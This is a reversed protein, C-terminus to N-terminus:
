RWETGSVQDTLWRRTLARLQAEHHGPERRKQPLITVPGAGPMAEAILRGCTMPHAPDAPSVVIGAPLKITTLGNMEIAASSPISRLVNAREQAYPREFQRLLSSATVDSLGAISRFEPTRSFVTVGAPGYRELCEAITRYIAVMGTDVMNGARAPRILVLSEVLEPRAAAVQLSVEAGMSMGVLAVLPRGSREIIWEAVAIADEALASFTLTEPPGITATAGHGRMDAAFRVWGAGLESATPTFGLSQNHDGGLGHLHLVPLVGNGDRWVAVTGHPTAVLEPIM